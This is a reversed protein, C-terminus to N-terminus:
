NHSISPFFAQTDAKLIFRRTVTYSGLVLKLYTTNDHVSRYRRFEYSRFGSTEEVIPDLAFSHLTQVVKDKITPILLRKSGNSKPIYIRKVPTTKYSSLNKVAIIM